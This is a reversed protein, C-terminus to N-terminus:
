KSNVTILHVVFYFFGLILIFSLISKPNAFNVTWGTWGLRKPPFIRQDEPNFYFLGLKWNKPNKRWQEQIEKSPNGM